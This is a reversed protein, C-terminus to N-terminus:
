KLGLFWLITDLAVSTIATTHDAGPIIVLQIKSDPVGKTKFDAFITQSMSVPIYTDDAGHYLHMPTSANWAEVSNAIFASKLSSFKANTAFETRFAPTLFSDMKTTLMANISGGSHNGDFLGPIIAAYPAQIFDSLPNSVLGITTYANLLYALFYPMPYDTQSSVYDNMYELSYPGSACSSAVLTFESSYNTEIAKQLLMTAWGGQSYGFIFLKKTPKAIVKVDTGYENVARLMDLISQTTSEAHLYPHPLQASAGFGIYDPIVVIFGMSAVSELMSVVDGKPNETPAESHLTNTGNQFCLVPYNGATKPLCVLGSAQISTSKFTTKYVIKQIEIDSQILTGVLGIDPIYTQLSTKVDATTMDFKLENSILYQNAPTVPTEKKTCSYLVLGSFVIIELFFRYQKFTNM